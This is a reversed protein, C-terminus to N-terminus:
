KMHAGRPEAVAGQTGYYGNYAENGYQPPPAGAPPAYQQPPVYQQQAYGQNGTATMPTSTAHRNQRRQRCRICCFVFFVLFIGIFILVGSLLWRGWRHWASDCNNYRTYGYRCSRTVHSQRVVLNFVDETRPLLQLDQPIIM